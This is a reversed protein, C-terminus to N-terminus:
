NASEVPVRERESRRTLLESQAAVREALQANLQQLEFRELAVEGIADIMSLYLAKYEDARRRQSCWGRIAAIWCVALACFGFVM